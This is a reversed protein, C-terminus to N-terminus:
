EAQRAFPLSVYFTSGKGEGLSEVWLRGAHAQVIKQCLALGIGVGGVRRTSGGDVQYFREFIEKQHQPAIGIGQDVIAIHAEGRAAWARVRVTSGAPSFKIANNLLNNIVQELLDPDLPVDSIDESTTDWVLRVGQQEAHAYWSLLFGQLLTPLHCARTHVKKEDLSQLLLLRDIMYRLQQSQSTIVQVAERQEETLPGLEDDALLTTYGVILTLPTRLEHSVNQLMEQKAIVALELAENTRRLSEEAEKEQTIDQIIIASNSGDVQDKRHVPQAKILLFRNLYPDDIELTASQHKGQCDFLFTALDCDTGKCGPHLLDHLAMHKIKTVRGLQWREITRNARLLRGQGDILCILQPLADLTAEWEQKAQEVQAFIKQISVQNLIEARNRNSYADRSSGNGTGVIPRIYPQFLTYSTIMLETEM